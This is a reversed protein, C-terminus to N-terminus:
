GVPVAPTSSRDPVGLVVRDPTRCGLLVGMAAAFVATAGAVHIAVLYAPLDNFYQLYGVGAQAVLLGLLLGVRRSLLQSAGTRVLVALLLLVAGLFVMVTTGHVRAVDPIPLDLRTARLSVEASNGADGSHPGAGTVVTGTV